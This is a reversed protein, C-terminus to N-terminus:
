NIIRTEIHNILKKFSEAVTSNHTQIRVDYNSPPVYMDQIGTFNEIKNQRAKKYLGKIDREECVKLPSDIYVEIYADEGIIQKAIDRLEKYPSITAVIVIAGNKFFLKAIEAIRRINEIREERSFGLNKNISSRLEDGDLVVHYYNLHSLYSKLEKSLTTKGSGSLGTFWIVKPNSSLNITKPTMM